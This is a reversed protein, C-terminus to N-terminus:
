FCRSKKYFIRYLISKAYSIFKPYICVSATNGYKGVAKQCLTAVTENTDSDNLTTLDLLGILKKASEVNDM